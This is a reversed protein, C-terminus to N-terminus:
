GYSQLAPNEVAIIIKDPQLLMHVALLFTSFPSTQRNQPISTFVMISCLKLDKTSALVAFNEGHCTHAGCLSFDVHVEKKLRKELM